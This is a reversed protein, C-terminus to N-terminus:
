ICHFLFLSPPLSLSPYQMKVYHKIANSLLFLSMIWNKILYPDEPKGSPARAPSQKLLLRQWQATQFSLTISRSVCNGIPVFSSMTLFQHVLFPWANRRLGSNVATNSYNLQQCIQYFLSVWCGFQFVIWIFLTFWCTHSPVIHMFNFLHHRFQQTFYVM